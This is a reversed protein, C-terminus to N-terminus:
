VPGGSGSLAALAVVVPAIEGDEDQQVYGSAHVDRGLDLPAHEGRRCLLLVRAGPCHEANAQFVWPAPAANRTDVVILDPCGVSDVWPEDPEVSDVSEISPNAALSAGVASVLDADDTVILVRLPNVL